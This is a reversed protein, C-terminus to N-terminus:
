FNDSLVRRARELFAEEDRTKLVAGAAVRHGGFEVGPFDSVIRKLAALVDRRSRDHVRLSVKTCGVGTMRALGVVVVDRGVAGGRAVMSCVTGIISPLIHGGANIIRYHATEEVPAAQQWAYAERLVRRYEALVGQAARRAAADGLLMAVGLEPRELRGCANLLTAVQRADRFLGEEGLITIHIATAPQRTARRAGQALLAAKQAASLDDFRTARGETRLPIGLEELFARAGRASGTVGPIRLDRSKVLLEVLSWREYGFLRLREEVALLGAAVGQALLEQNMGRVGQKEQSDALFGIVALPLLADSTGLERAVCYAITASCADRGGDLGERWPNLMREPSSESQHHDIVFASFEDIEPLSAGVDIFLLAEDKPFRMLVERTLLPLFELEVTIGLASLAGQLIACACLGDADFHSILRVREQQRLWEAARACNM